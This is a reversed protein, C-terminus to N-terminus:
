PRRGAATLTYVGKNGAPFGQITLVLLGKKPDLRFTGQDTRPQGKGDTYSFSIQDGRFSFRGDQAFSVPGGGNTLQLRKAYSGDPRLTLTGGVGSAYLPEQGSGQDFIAYSTYTYTTFFSAAPAQQAAFQDPRSSVPLPLPALLAPLASLFSLLVFLM